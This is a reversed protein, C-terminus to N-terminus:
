NNAGDNQSAQLPLSAVSQKTEFGRSLPNLGPQPIVTRICDVFSAEQGSDCHLLQEFCTNVEPM